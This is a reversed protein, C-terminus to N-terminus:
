PVGANALRWAERLVIAVRAAFRHARPTRPTALLRQRGAHRRLDRVQEAAVRRQLEGMM